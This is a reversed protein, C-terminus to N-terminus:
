FDTGSFATFVRAQEDSFERDGINAQGIAPSSPNARRFRRALAEAMLHERKHKTAFADFSKILLSSAVSDLPHRRSLRAPADMGGRHGYDNKAIHLLAM